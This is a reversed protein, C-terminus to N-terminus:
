FRMSCLCSPHHQNCETCVHAPHSALFAMRGLMWQGTCTLWHHCRHRCNCCAHHAYMNCIYGHCVTCQASLVSFLSCLKTAQVHNQVVICVENAVFCKQLASEEWGVAELCSAEGLVDVRIGHQRLEHIAAGRCHALPHRMGIVVRTVGARVLASLSANDGHCDGTELNLYATCGQITPYEQRAKSVAQIEASTTGQAVSWRAKCNVLLCHPSM